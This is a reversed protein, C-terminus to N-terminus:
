DVINPHPDVRSGLVGSISGIEHGWLPFEMNRSIKNAGERPNM